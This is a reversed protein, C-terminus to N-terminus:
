FIHIMDNLEDAVYFNGSADMSLYFTTNMTASTALGGEGSYTGSTGSIGAVTSIYGNTGIM